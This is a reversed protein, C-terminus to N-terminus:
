CLEFHIKIGPLLPKFFLPFRIEDHDIESALFQNVLLYSLLENSVMEVLLFCM